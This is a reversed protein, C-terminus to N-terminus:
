LMELDSDSLSESTHQRKLPVRQSLMAYFSDDEDNDIDENAGVAEEEGSSDDIVDALM